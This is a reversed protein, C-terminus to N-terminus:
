AAQRRTLGYLYFLIRALALIILFGSLVSGGILAARAQSKTEPERIIVAPAKFRNKVQRVFGSQPQIGQLADALHKELDHFENKPPM